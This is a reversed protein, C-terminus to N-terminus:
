NIAMHDCGMPFSYMHNPRGVEFVGEPVVYQKLYKSFVSQECQPGDPLCRCKYTGGDEFDVSEVVLEYNESQMTSVKGSICSSRLWEFKRTGSGCASKCELEM